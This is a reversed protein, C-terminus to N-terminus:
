IMKRSIEFVDKLQSLFKSELSMSTKLSPQHHDDSSSIMFLWIPTVNLAWLEAELPKGFLVNSQLIVKFSTWPNCKDM